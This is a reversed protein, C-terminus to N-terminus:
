ASAAMAKLALENYFTEVSVHDAIIVYNAPPDIRCHLAEGFRAIGKEGRMLLLKEGRKALIRNVRKLITQRQRVAESKM